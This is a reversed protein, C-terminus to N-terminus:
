QTTKKKLCFVAYSICMLSQLESTHEESRCDRVILIRSCWFLHLSLLTGGHLLQSSYFARDRCLGSGSGVEEPRGIRVGHQRDDHREGSLDGRKILADVRDLANDFLLQSRFLTTDPFLTATRTSRPPRRIRLFFFSLM